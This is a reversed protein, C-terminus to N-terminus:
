ICTCTYKELFKITENNENTKSVVETEALPFNDERSLTKTIHYVCGTSIFKYFLSFPFHLYIFWLVIVGTSWFSGEVWQFFAGKVGCMVYELSM